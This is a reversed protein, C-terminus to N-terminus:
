KKSLVEGIFRLGDLTLHADVTHFFGKLSTMVFSLVGTAIAPCDTKLETRIAQVM